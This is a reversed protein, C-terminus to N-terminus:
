TKVAVSKKGDVMMCNIFKALLQNKFKPDPLIERKAAVKRRSM